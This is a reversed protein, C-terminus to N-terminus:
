EPAARSGKPALLVDYALTLDVSWTEASSDPAPGTVAAAEALEIGAPRVNPATEALRRLFAVVGRVSTQEFHLFIMAEARDSGAVPRPESPEISVLQGALGAASAADRLRRNLEPDAGREGIAASAEAGGAAALVALRDRVATRDDAAAAARDRADGLRSAAVWATAAAAVLLVCLM